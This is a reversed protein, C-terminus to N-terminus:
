GSIPHSTNSTVAIPYCLVLLTLLLDGVTKSKQIGPDRLPLLIVADYSQFLSGEAWRKCINIALTTKGVGPDGNILIVKKKEGEVDLAESLTVIGSLRQDEESSTREQEDAKVLTLNIYELASCNLKEDISTLELSEYKCEFYERYKEMHHSLSPQSSKAASIGVIFM